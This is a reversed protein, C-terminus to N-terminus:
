KIGTKINAKHQQLSGFGFVTKESFAGKFVM